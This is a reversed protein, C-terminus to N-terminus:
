EDSEKHAAEIPLSILIEFSNGMDSMKLMGKNDRVIKNIIKFGIGHEKMNAKTTAMKNKIPSFEISKSNSVSIVWQQQIIKSKIKVWKESTKESAEIANDILNGLLSILNKETISRIPMEKFDFEVDIGKEACLKAKYGLLADVIPINTNIMTAYEGCQTSLCKIEEASDIKNIITLALEKIDSIYKDMDQYRDAYMDDKIKLEKNKGSIKNGHLIIVVMAISLLFPLILM